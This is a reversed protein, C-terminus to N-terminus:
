TTRCARAGAVMSTAYWDTRALNLGAYKSRGAGPLQGDPVHVQYDRLPVNISVEHWDYFAQPGSVAIAARAAESQPTQPGDIFIKYARSPPDAMSGHGLAATAGMLLSLVAVAAPFRSRAPNPRDPMSLDHSPVEPM